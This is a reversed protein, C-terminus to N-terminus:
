QNAEPEKISILTQSSNIQASITCTIESSPISGNVIKSSFLVLLSSRIRVKTPM